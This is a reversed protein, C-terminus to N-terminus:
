EEYELYGRVNVTAPATCRVILAKGITSAAVITQPERGLPQQIVLVGGNPTLWWQKVVTLVTPEASYNVGATCTAAGGPWGRIQLPTFATTTGATAQTSQCLEVLVPVASATVGDFSVSFEVLTAADAAGAIVSMISKATAASLACSPTVVTYAQAAM